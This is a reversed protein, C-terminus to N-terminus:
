TIRSHWRRPSKTRLAGTRRLELGEKAKEFRVNNPDWHSYAEFEPTYWGIGVGLIARGGPLELVLEELMKLRDLM